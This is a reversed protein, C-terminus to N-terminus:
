ESHTVESDSVVLRIKVSLSLAKYLNLLKSLTIYRLLWIKDLDQRETNRDWNKTFYHNGM